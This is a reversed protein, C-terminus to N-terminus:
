RKPSQRKRRAKGGRGPKRTEKMRPDRTLLGEEKFFPRLKPDYKELARTLGHVIADLQASKGSGSVKVTASFDGETKSLVFPKNYKVIALPIDAFYDKVLQDNVIFDGKEPYIRVRAIASKRRGIGETYEGQPYNLNADKKFSHTNAETQGTKKAAKVVQTIQQNHKM